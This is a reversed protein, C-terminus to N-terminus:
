QLVSRRACRALLRREGGVEARPESDETRLLRSCSVSFPSSVVPFQSGPVLFPACWATRLTGATLRRCRFTRLRRQCGRRRSSGIGQGGGGDPKHPLCLAAARVLQGSAPTGRARLTPM